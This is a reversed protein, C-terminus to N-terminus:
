RERIVRAPNGAAIVRDSLPKVVVSGAGVICGPGIDAMVITGNGLWSNAGIRITVFSGGQDQIPVDPDDFNHQATGSLIDVNSGITVHDELVVNGITCHMGIYVRDGVEVQQKSFVTGFGVTFDRGCRPLSLAYFARRVYEGQVGPVLSMIQSYSQFVADGRSSGLLAQEARMAAILPAVTARVAGNGLDKLQEFLSAV